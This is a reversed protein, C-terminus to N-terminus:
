QLTPSPTSCMAKAIASRLEALTPDISVPYDSEIEKFRELANVCAALLDPAAAILLADPHDLLRHWSKHHDREPDVVTLDSANRLINGVNFRPQASQMGYRVFDMVITGGKQPARLSFSKSAPNIEWYWPGKTHTNM